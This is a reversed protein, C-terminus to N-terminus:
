RCELTLSAARAVPLTVTVTRGGSARTTVRPDESQCASAGAIVLELPQGGRLALTIRWHDGVSQRSWQTLIANADRLYPGIPATTSLVLRPNTGVLHVYRNGAADHYGAVGRSRDLDPFRSPLPIRVTHPPAIGRWTFGGDQDRLLASRYVTEVRRAYDSLFMPTVPQGLAYDYVEQLADLSEPKTGSYFHYYISIPMLRGKNELIKFSDIVDRYGYFPGKWLNTYLNENMTPAYVQLEDGVPRASPWVGALESEYPLPHTDGGNVNLLGALRTRALAQPGPRADGTWLFVSVPKDTPALKHNIYEVSGNIEQQLSPTYGPVDLFYGYLTKNPAPAAGGEMARWFFPHSFSHSAVEVNELRFIARATQQAQRSEAPYLGDPSVEAEIVSVTHPIRYRSLIRKLIVSAAMPRDPFEGRSVFGDGDIHATLIRRGTETTTDLVPYRPGGLAKSIFTLPNFLWYAQDDPGREFLYPALAVGGGGHIYIPTFRRGRADTVTLWPSVQDAIPERDTVLAPLRTGEFRTVSPELPSNILPAVPSDLGSAGIVRRCATNEPLRGFVVIPLGAAQQRALWDCLWPSERDSELWILIGAYKDLAPEAPRPQTVSRYDPVYGLHELLIGARRHAASEDMADAPRDHLVLVQRKVRAPRTPGLRLLQPDSVYPIFGDERLQRAVAPAQNADHVYDIAILVVSPHQQRWHALKSDLWDRDAASIDRYRKHAPDYGKRYSELALADVLSHAKEPLDFGRNIIIRSTPYHERIRRILQYQAEEFAQPNAKGADTLQFSDLTDLFVGHFGRAMAPEILRSFLFDRVAPLRIDLVASQWATNSGLLWAKPITAALQHNRAIEGVSVYAIPQSDARSLYDLRAESVMDPQLVVWDYAMLAGIPAERGYYFAVNAPSMAAQGNLSGLLGIAFVLLSALRIM